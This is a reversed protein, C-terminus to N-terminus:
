PPPPPPSGSNIKKIMVFASESPEEFYPDVIDQTVFGNKTYTQIAAANSKRVHLYMMEADAQLALEEVHKLLASAIGQRKTVSAISVIYVKRVIHADDPALVGLESCHLMYACVGCIDHQDNEAVVVNNDYVLHRWLTESYTDHESFEQRDIKILSALDSAVAFRLTFM